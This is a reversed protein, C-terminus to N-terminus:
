QVAVIVTTQQRSRKGGRSNRQGDNVAEFEIRRAAECQPCLVLDCVLESKMPDDDPADFGKIGQDCYFVMEQLCSAAPRMKGVQLKCDLYGLGELFKNPRIYYTAEAKTFSKLASLDGHRCGCLKSTEVLRKACSNTTEKQVTTSKTKKKTPDKKGGTTAKPQKGTKQNTRTKLVPVNDQDTDSILRGGKRKTITTRKIMNNVAAQKAKDIRNTALWGNPTADMIKAHSALLQRRQDEKAERRADQMAHPQEQVTVETNM